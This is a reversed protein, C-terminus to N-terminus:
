TSQKIVRFQIKIQWCQEYFKVVEEPLRIAILRARHKKATVNVSLDISSEKTFQLLKELTIGAELVVDASGHLRSLWFGGNQEISQFGFVDFCGLDRIVLDRERIEDLLRPGLIRDQTRAEVEECDIFQWSQLDMILDLKAAATTGSNNFVGRYHKANKRNIWFQSSDQVLLRGFRIQELSQHKEESLLSALAVRLFRVAKANFRQHLSQRILSEPNLKALQSAMSQFSANGNYVAHFQTLLFGEASYKRSSKQIL